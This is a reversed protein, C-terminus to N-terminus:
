FISSILFNKRKNKNRKKENKKNSDDKELKKTNEQNEM